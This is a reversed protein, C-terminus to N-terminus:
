INKLKLHEEIQRDINGLDAALKNKKDNHVKQEIAGFAKFADNWGRAYNIKRRQEYLALLVPDPEQDGDQDSVRDFHSM